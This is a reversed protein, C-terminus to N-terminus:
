WDINGNLHLCLILIVMPSDPVVNQLIPDLHVLYYRHDTGLGNGSM